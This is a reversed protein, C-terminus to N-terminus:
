AGNALVGVFPALAQRLKRVARFVSQKTANVSMGLTTGIEPISLGEVHRLVFAAREKETLRGLALNYRKRIEGDIALREQNAEVDPQPPDEVPEAHRSRARLMDLAYNTAIRFLWTGFAARGDYRDLRRYARLFAEQVVEDADAENGTLRYALRFIRRSYREVLLRFQDRDGARVSEIIDLDSQFM